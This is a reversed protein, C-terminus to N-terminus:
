SEHCTRGGDDAAAAAPAAANGGGSHSDTKQPLPMVLMNIKQWCEALM